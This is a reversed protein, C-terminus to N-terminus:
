VVLFILVLVPFLASTIKLVKNLKSPHLIALSFRAQTEQHGTVLYILETDAEWDKMVSDIELDKM